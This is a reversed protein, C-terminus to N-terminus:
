SLKESYIEDGGFELVLLDGKKPEDITLSIKITTNIESNKNKEIDEIKCDPKM